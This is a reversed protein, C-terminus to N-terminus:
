KESLDKDIEGVLLVTRTKLFRENLPEEPKKTETEATQPEAFKMEQLAGQLLTLSEKDISSKITVIELYFPMSAPM